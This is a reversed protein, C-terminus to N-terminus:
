AAKRIKTETEIKPTETSEVTIKRAKAIVPAPVTIELLGNAFNAKMADLDAGEPLLFRREFSGYSIEQYSYEKEQEDKETKREGKIVLDRDVVSVELDKQDIGPLEVKIHLVGDKMFSEITPVWMGREKLAPIGSEDFFRGFMKDMERKMTHLEEFPDWARMPRLPDWRVLNKM